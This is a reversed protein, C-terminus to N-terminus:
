KSALGTVCVSLCCCLILPLPRGIHSEQSVASLSAKLMSCSNLNISLIGVPLVVSMANIGFRAINHGNSGVCKSHVQHLFQIISTM